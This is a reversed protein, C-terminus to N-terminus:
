KGWNNFVESLQEDLSNNDNSDSKKTEVTAVKGNIQVNYRKKFYLLTQYADKCKEKVVSSMVKNVYNKFNYDGKKNNVCYYITANIVGSPIDMEVLSKILYIDDKFLAPIELIARYYDYPDTNDLKKAFKILDKDDTTPNEIDKSSMEEVLQNFKILNISKKQNCDTEISAVVCRELINESLDFLLKVRLIEKKVSSTFVAKPILHDAMKIVFRDMDFDSTVNHTVKESYHSSLNKLPENNKEFSEEFTSSIDVYADDSYHNDSYYYQTRYFEDEGLSQLLLSNLIPDKFFENPSKPSHLVYLYELSVHDELERIKTSLLGISELKKRAKVFEQISIQMISFLRKHTRKNAIISNVNSESFLSFYLATACHGIIPQYLRYIVKQDFDTIIGSREISYSDFEKVDNKM